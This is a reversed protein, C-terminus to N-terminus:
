KAEVHNTVNEAVERGPKSFDSKVWFSMTLSWVTLVFRPCGLIFGVVNVGNMEVSLLIACPTLVENEVLNNKM